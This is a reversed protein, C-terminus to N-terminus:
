FFTKPNYKKVIPQILSNWANNYETESGYPMKFYDKYNISLTQRKACLAAPFGPCLSIKKQIRRIKIELIIKKFKKIINM